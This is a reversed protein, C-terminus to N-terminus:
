CDVFVTQRGIVEGTTSVVSVEHSGNPRGSIGRLAAGFAAATTSRRIGDVQVIYSRPASTPNTLQAAVFGRGASCYNFIQLEPSSVVPGNDCRVDVRDFFIDKGDRVVNIRISGDSRGTVPARWWADPAVEAQRWPLTGIRLRYRATDDGTNVINVDIRGNGGLCTVAPFIGEALPAELLNTFTCNVSGGAAPEVELEGAYAYTDASDCEIDPELWGDEPLQTLFFSEVQDPNEIVISQTVGDSLTLISQGEPLYSFEAAPDEESVQTITLIFPPNPPDLPVNTYVCDVRGGPPVAGRVTTVATTWDETDGTCVIEPFAWGEPVRQAVSIDAVTTVLDWTEGDVLDFGPSFFFAQAPDAPAAQTITLTRVNTNTYVCDVRGGPPVTGSVRLGNVAWSDTDGVCEVEPASWDKPHNQVIAISEDETLAVVHTEGDALEFPTGNAFFPFTTSQGTPSSQTISVIGPALLRNTFTCEFVGPGDIEVWDKWDIEIFEQPGTCEATPDSWGRRQVNQYASVSRIEDLDVTFTYSEGDALLLPGGEPPFVPVWYSFKRDPDEPSVQNITVTTTDAEQAAASGASLMLVAAAIIVALLGITSANRILAQPESGRRQTIM